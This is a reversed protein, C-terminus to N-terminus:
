RHRCVAQRRRPHARHGTTYWLYAIGIDSVTSMIGNVIFYVVTRIITPSQSNRETFICLAMIINRNRNRLTGSVQLAFRHKSDVSSSDPTSTFQDLWSVSWVSWGGDLRLNDHRVFTTIASNSCIRVMLGVRVQQGGTRNPMIPCESCRCGTFYSLM